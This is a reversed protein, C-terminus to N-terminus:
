GHFSRLIILPELRKQYAPTSPPNQSILCVSCFPNPHCQSPVPFSGRSATGLLPADTGWRETIEERRVKSVGPAGTFYAFAKNEMETSAMPESGHSKTEALGWPVRRQCAAVHSHPPLLHTKCRTKFILVQGWLPM